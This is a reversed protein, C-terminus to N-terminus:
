IHGTALFFLYLFYFKLILICYHLLNACGTNEKVKVILRKPITTLENLWWSLEVTWVSLHINQVFLGRCQYRKEQVFSFQVVATEGRAGRSQMGASDRNIYTNGRGEQEQEEEWEDKAVDAERGGKEKKQDREGGDGRRGGGGIGGSWGGGFSGLDRREKSAWGNQVSALARLKKGMVDRSLWRRKIKLPQANLCMACALETKCQFKLEKKKKKQTERCPLNSFQHTSKTRFTVLAGATIPKNTHTNLTRRRKERLHPTSPAADKRFGRAHTHQGSTLWGTGRRKERASYPLAPSLDLLAFFRFM